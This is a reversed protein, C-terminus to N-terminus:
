SPDCRGTLYNLFDFLLAYLTALATRGIVGGHRGPRRTERDWRRAKHWFQAAQEPLSDRASISNM